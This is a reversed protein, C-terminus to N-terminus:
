SVEAFNQSFRLRTVEEKEVIFFITVNQKLKGIFSIQQKSLDVDQKSLDIAILKYHNLFYDYNLLNGTTYDSNRILETIAQYTEKKNKISIEFFPKQDILVNYDTIEVTPTYYKSFDTGDEENEFALVFLIHVKDFTPDILYNLNNNATQNSIQCKCKNWYITITFGKYFHSNNKLEEYLKNENEINLTVVLVYLKCDNIVIEANAPNGIANVQPQAAADDGALIENRTAKSTLVCNKNWKLDLSIGCNILPVDLM